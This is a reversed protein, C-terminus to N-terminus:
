AGAAGKLIVYASIALVIGFIFWFLPVVFGIPYGFIGQIKKYEEINYIKKLESNFLKKFISESRKLRIYEAYLVWSSILCIVGAIIPFITLYKQVVSEKQYLIPAVLVATYIAISSQVIKWFNEHKYHYDQWALDALEALNKESEGNKSEEM